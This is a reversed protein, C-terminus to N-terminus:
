NETVLEKEEMGTIAKWHTPTYYVYMSGDPYFWLNKMRKLSQENRVGNEDDIKTMVPIGENPLDEHISIWTNDNMYKTKIM